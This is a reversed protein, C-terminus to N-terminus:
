QRIRELRQKIPEVLVPVPVQRFTLGKGGGGALSGTVRIQYLGRSVTSSLQHLPAPMLDAVRSYMTHFSFAVNEGNTDLEGRGRLNIANGLLDLQSVSVRQDRLLFRAHMEEFATRDPARLNLVKLVDLLLPLNYMQGSEVDVSGGGELMPEGPKPHARGTLWIQGGALGSMKADSQLQNHRALAELDIGTATLKLDYRAQSGTTLRVEGGM